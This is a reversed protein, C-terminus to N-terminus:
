QINIIAKPSHHTIIQKSTMSGMFYLDGLYLFAVESHLPKEKNSKLHDM